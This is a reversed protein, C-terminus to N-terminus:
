YLFKGKHSFFDRMYASELLHLSTGQKSTSYILIVCKLLQGGFKSLSSTINLEEKEKM